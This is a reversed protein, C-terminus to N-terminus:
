LLEINEITKEVIDIPLCITNYYKKIIEKNLPDKLKPPEFIEGCGIRFYIKDNEIKFLISNLNAKKLNIFKELLNSTFIKMAIMKNETLCDYAQEFEASDMEIRKSDYKKTISNSVICIKTEISKPIKVMGYLGRFTEIRDTERNGDADKYTHVEKTVVQSMEFRINEKLEGYIKDESFFENFSNDFKSSKYIYLSVGEEANFKLKSNYKKVLEEIIKEKFLKRFKKSEKEFVIIFVIIFVPIVITLGIKQKDILSVLVIVLFCIAIITLIKKNRERKSKMLIDNSKEYLDQYITEFEKKM